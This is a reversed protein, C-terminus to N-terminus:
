SKMYVHIAYAPTCTFIINFLIFYVIIKLVIDVVYIKKVIISDLEILKNIHM